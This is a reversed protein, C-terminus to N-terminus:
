CVKKISENTVSTKNLMKRKEPYSEFHRLVSTKFSATKIPKLGFSHDGKLKLNKM